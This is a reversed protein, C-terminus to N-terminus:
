DAVPEATDASATPVTPVTDVVPAIEGEDTSPQTGEAAPVVPEDLAPTSTAVPDTSTSVSEAATVVDAILAELEKTEDPNLVQSTETLTDVLEKAQDKVAIAVRIQMAKEEDSIAVNTGGTQLTQLGQQVEAVNKKFESVVAVIKNKKETPTSAQEYAIKDAEDVRNKAFQAHLEVRRGHSPTVAVQTKELAIKVPYLTDGPLAYFAANVVLSSGVFVGLIMLMVMSPQFLPQRLSGFLLAAVDGFSVPSQQPQPQSKIHQLLAARNLAVWEPRPQIGNLQKLQDKMTLLIKQRLLLM